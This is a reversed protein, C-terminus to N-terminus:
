KDPNRGGRNFDRAFGVKIKQRNEYVFYYWLVAIKIVIEKEGDFFRKKKTM